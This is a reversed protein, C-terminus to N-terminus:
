DYQLATAYIFYRGNSFRGDISKLVEFYIQNRFKEAEIFQTRPIPLSPDLIWEPLYNYKPPMKVSKTKVSRLCYTKEFRQQGSHKTQLYPVEVETFSELEFGCDHMHEELEQLTLNRIPDKFGFGLPGFNVWTAGPKLVFNLRKMFANLDQPIIDIFWPTLVCDVSNALLPPNMCDAFLFHFNKPKKKKHRCIHYPCVEGADGPAVPFDYIHIEDGKLIKQAGLLLYPNIDIALTWAPNHQIHLDYTLRCAGAGFVVFSKGEIDPMVTNVADLHAGNEDTKWSWDRLLNTFYSNVQQTGPLKALLTKYEPSLDKPDEVLFESLLSKIIYRNHNYANQLLELRRRTTPMIEKRQTELIHDMQLSRDNLFNLM